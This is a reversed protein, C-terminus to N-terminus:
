RTLHAATRAIVEASNAGHPDFPLNLSSERKRGWTYPNREKMWDRHGAPYIAVTRKREFWSLQLIASHSCVAAWCDRVLQATAAMSLSTHVHLLPNEALLLVGRPVPENRYLAHVELGHAILGLLIRVQLDDPIARGPLGAGPAFVIAGSAVKIRRDPYWVPTYYNVPGREDLVLPNDFRRWAKNGVPIGFHEHCMEDAKGPDIGKNVWYCKVPYADFLRFLHRKPHWYLLDHASRNNCIQLVNVMDQAEDLIQLIDTKWARHFFDGIGGSFDVTPSEAISRMGGGVTESETRDDSM